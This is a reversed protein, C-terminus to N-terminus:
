KEKGNRFQENTNQNNPNIIFEPTPRSSKKEETPASSRSVAAKKQFNNTEYFFSLFSCSLAKFTALNKKKKKGEQM